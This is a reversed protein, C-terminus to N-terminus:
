HKKNEVFSFRSRSIAVPCSIAPPVARLMGQERMGDERVCSAKKTMEAIHKESCEGLHLGEQCTGCQWTTKLKKNKCQSQRCVLKYYTRGRLVKGDLGYKPPIEKTRVLQHSIKVLVDSTKGHCQLVAPTVPSGLRMDVLIHLEEILQERFQLPTWDEGTVIKFTILANNLLNEMVYVFFHTTWRKTSYPFKYSMRAADLRDIGGMYSNYYNVVKPVNKSRAEKWKSKREREAHTTDGVSFLFQIPREDYWAFTLLQHDKSYVWFIADHGKKNCYTAQTTGANKV